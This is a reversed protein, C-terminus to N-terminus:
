TAAKGLCSELVECAKVFEDKSAYWRAPIPQSQNHGWYVLLVKNSKKWRKARAWPMVCEKTGLRMFLGEKRVEVQMAERLVPDRRCRRLFMLRALVYLMVAYTVIAAAIYVWAIDVLWLGVGIATFVTVFLLLWKRGWYHLHLADTIDRSEIRGGVVM